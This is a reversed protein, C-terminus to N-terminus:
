TSSSLFLNYTAGRLVTYLPILFKSVCHKPAAQTYMYQALKLRIYNYM